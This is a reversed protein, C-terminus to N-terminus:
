WSGGEGLLHRSAMRAGLQRSALVGAVVGRRRALRQPAREVAVRDHGDGTM